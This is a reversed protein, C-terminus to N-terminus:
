DAVLLCLLSHLQIMIMKSAGFLHLCVFVLAVIIEKIFAYFLKCGGWPLFHVTDLSAHKSRGKEVGTSEWGGCSLKGHVGWIGSIARSVDMTTILFSTDLSGSRRSDASPAPDSTWEVQCWSLDTHLFLVYCWKFSGRNRGATFWPWTTSGSTFPLWLFTLHSWM